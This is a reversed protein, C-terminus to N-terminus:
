DRDNWEVTSAVRRQTSVEQDKRVGWRTTFHNRLCYADHQLDVRGAEDMSVPQSCNGRIEVNPPWRAQGHITDGGDDEDQDEYDEDQDDCDEDQDDYDEDQDEKENEDAMSLKAGRMLARDTAPLGIHSYHQTDAPTLNAGDEHFFKCFGLLLETMVLKKEIDEELARTTRV